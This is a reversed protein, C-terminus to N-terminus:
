TILLPNTISYEVPWFGFPWRSVRSVVYRSGGGKLTSMRGVGKHM